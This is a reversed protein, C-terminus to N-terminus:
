VGLNALLEKKPAIMKKCREEQERKIREIESELEKNEVKLTQISKVKKNSLLLAEEFETRLKLFKAREKDVEQLAKVNEMELENLQSQLKFNQFLIKEKEYQDQSYTVDSMAGGFFKVLLDVEHKQMINDISHVSEPQPMGELLPLVVYSGNNDPHTYNDTKGIRRIGDFPRMTGYPFREIAFQKYYSYHTHTQSSRRELEQKFDSETTFKKSIWGNSTLELVLYSRFTMTNNPNNVGQPWIANAMLKIIEANEEAKVVEKFKEPLAEFAMLRGFEKTPQPISGPLSYSGFELVEKLESYNLIEYYNGEEGKRNTFRALINFWKCWKLKDYSKINIVNELGLEGKECFEKIKEVEPTRPYDFLLNKKAGREIEKAISGGIKNRDVLMSDTKQYAIMKAKDLVDKDKIGELNFINFSNFAVLKSDESYKKLFNILNQIDELVFGRKDVYFDLERLDDYPKFNINAHFRNLTKNYTTAWGSFFKGEFEAFAIKLYDEHKVEKKQYKGSPKHYYLYTKALKGYNEARAKEFAMPMALLLRKVDNNQASLKLLKMEDNSLNANALDQLQGLFHNYWSMIEQEPVMSFDITWPINNYLKELFGRFGSDMSTYLIFNQMRTSLEKFRKNKEELTMSM